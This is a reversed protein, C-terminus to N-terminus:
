SVEPAALPFPKVDIQAVDSIPFHRKYRINCKSGQHTKPHRTRTRSFAQCFWQLSRSPKGM